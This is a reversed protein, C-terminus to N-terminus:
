YPQPILTYSGDANVMLKYRNSTPLPNPVTLLVADGRLADLLFRHYEARPVQYYQKAPNVGIAFALLSGSAVLDRFHQRSSSFVRAIRTLEIPDGRLDYQPFRRFVERLKAEDADTACLIRNNMASLEYNM